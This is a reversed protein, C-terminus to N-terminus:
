WKGRMFNAAWFGLVGGLVTLVAGLIVAVYLPARWPRPLAVAAALALLTLVLPVLPILWMTDRDIYDQLYDSTTLKLLLVANLLLLAASWNRNYRAHADTPLM